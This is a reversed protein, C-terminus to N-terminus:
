EGSLEARLRAMAYRYRSAATDPSTGLAAGIQVFSLGGWIRMVVAERQNEPLNRLSAQMMRRRESQEIGGVFLPETEPRATAQERKLRRRHSRQADLACHKVCAYLYATPDAVRQRSRWFRIFAEQVVDEADARTSVWQRAFLALARGHQELWIKWEDLGSAM